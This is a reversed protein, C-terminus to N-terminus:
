RGREAEVPADLGALREKMKSIVLNVGARSEESQFLERAKEQEAIARRLKRPDNGCARLAASALAEYIGLDSM